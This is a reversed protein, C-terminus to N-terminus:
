RAVEPDAEAAAIRRAESQAWRAIVERQGATLCARPHMLRYYWPAMAGNNVLRAVQELKHTATEPDSAYSNWDSFNLRRRGENVEHALLWSVPAIAGYLPWRTHSSHCDYCADILATKVELPAVLDGTVPFNRRQVPVFQILVFAIGAVAATTLAAGTM